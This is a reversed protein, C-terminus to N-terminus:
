SPRLKKTINVLQETTLNQPLVCNPALLIRETIPELSSLLDELEKSSPNTDSGITHLLEDKLGGLLGGAFIKKMSSDSFFQPFEDFAHFNIADVKINKLVDKFFIDDGHLHLLQFESKTRLKDAIQKDFPLAIQSWQEYNWNENPNTEQTALFLGNSGSEICIKSFDTMVDTIVQLRDKVLDKEENFQNILQDNSVLKRAVMAPLFITMMKPIDPLKKSLQKVLEIQKGLEGTQPDFEDIKEWDKLKTIPRKKSIYSGTEKNYDAPNFEVGFDVLAYKSHPSIKILDANVLEQFQVHANVSDEPRLDQGPFHKWLSYPLRTLNKKRGKIISVVDDFNIREM